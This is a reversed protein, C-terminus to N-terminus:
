HPRIRPRHWRSNCCVAATAAAAEAAASAMDQTSDVRMAPPDPEEPILTIASEAPPAMALENVLDGLLDDFESEAQKRVPASM